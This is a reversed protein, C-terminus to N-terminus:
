SEYYVFERDGSSLTLEEGDLTIEMGESLLRYFDTEYQNLKADVCMMMTSAANPLSLVDDTLIGRGRFNNCAKGIIQMGQDFQIFPQEGMDPNFNQGDVKALVFKKGALDKESVGAATSSSPAVVSDSADDQATHDVADLEPSDDDTESEEGQEDQDMPELPQPISIALQPPLPVPSQLDAMAEEQVSAVPSPIAVPVVPPPIAAVSQQQAPVAPPTVPAVPLPAPAASQPAPVAVPKPAPVVPAPQPASAVPAPVPVVPQVAPAVTQPAPAPPEQAPAAPKVPEAPEAVPEPAAPAVPAAPKPASKVSAPKVPAPTYKDGGKTEQPTDRKFILVMNDRRLELEDGSLQYSIGYGLNRLFDRELKALDEDPCMMRTSAVGDAKFMMTSFEATGEFSNCIRGSIEGDDSFRIMIPRPTRASEGNVSELLFASGFLEDEWIYRAATREDESMEDMTKGQIVPADADSKKQEKEAKEREAAIEAPTLDMLEELSIYPSFEEEDNSEPKEEAANACASVVVCSAVVATFLFFLVRKRM